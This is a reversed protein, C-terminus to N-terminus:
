TQGAVIIFCEKEIWEKQSDYFSLTQLLVIFLPWVKDNISFFFILYFSAAAFYIAKERANTPISERMKSSYANSVRDM